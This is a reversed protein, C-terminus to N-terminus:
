TRERTILCLQNNDPYSFCCDVLMRNLASRYDTFSTTEEAYADERFGSEQYRETAMHIHFAYFSDKEIKNTHTHSKGNYRRLRFLQNTNPVFVALIVSFDIVNIRSRRLIIRFSNDRSGIVDIKTEDHGRRRKLRFQREYDKPLPKPETVLRAIEKDSFTGAM